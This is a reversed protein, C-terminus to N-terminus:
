GEVEFRKQKGRLSNILGNIKRDIQECLTRIKLAEEEAFLKRRRSIENM